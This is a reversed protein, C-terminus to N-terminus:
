LASARAVEESRLGLTQAARLRFDGRLEFPQAFFEGGVPLVRPLQPLVQFAACAVQIGLRFRQLSQPLLNGRLLAGPFRNLLLGGLLPPRPLFAVLALMGVQGFAAPFDVRLLGGETRVRAQVGDPIQVSVDSAGATIRISVEGNPRPLVVLLKAPTRALYTQIALALADTMYPLKGPDTDMGAPLLGERALAELM